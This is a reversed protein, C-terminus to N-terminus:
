KWLLDQKMGLHSLPDLCIVQVQCRSVSVSTAPNWRSPKNLRLPFTGSHQSTCCVALGQFATCATTVLEQASPLAYLLISCNQLVTKLTCLESLLKSNYKKSPIEETVHDSVNPTSIWTPIQPSVHNASSNKLHIRQFSVWLVGFCVFGGQM